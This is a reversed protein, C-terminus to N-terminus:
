DLGLFHEVRAFQKRAEELILEIDEDHVDKEEYPAMELSFGYHEYEIWWNALEWIMTRNQSDSARYLAIPPRLEPQACSGQWYGFYHISIYKGLWGIQTRTLRM